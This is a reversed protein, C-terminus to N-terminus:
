DAQRRTLEGDREEVYHSVTDRNSTREDAITLIHCLRKLEGDIPLHFSIDLQLRKRLDIFDELSELM